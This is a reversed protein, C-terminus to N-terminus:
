DLLLYNLVNTAMKRQGQENIHINDRFDEVALGNDLDKIIPIHHENAFFIIEEGQKNYSGSKLEKKDAHLYITLPINHSVSYEYFNEFGSNFISSEKKKNIGLSEEEKVTSKSFIKKVRPYLYRDILEWTALHYQKSPFSKHVDVTPEFTMNDYADHSSVFLFIHKATFNGNKNLYAFCNDPGWSGASINLFQVKKGRIITLTDSLITSALSDQATQVGGNLVSDGFGLIIVSTTDVEESRMSLSNYQINNRFRFRKQNPQAIYEFDASEKMLVTDCFGYYKRLFIEVGTLLVILTLCIVAIQKFRKRNKKAMAV